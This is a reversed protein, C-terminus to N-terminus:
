TCFGHKKERARLVFSGTMHDRLQKHNISERAKYIKKTQCMNGSTCPVSMFFTAKFLRLLCAEVWTRRQLRQWELTVSMHVVGLCWGQRESTELRGKELCVEM